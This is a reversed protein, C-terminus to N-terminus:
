DHNITQRLIEMWRRQSKENPMDIRWEPHDIDRVQVFLGSAKRNEREVRANHGMAQSGAHLGYGLVQGGTSLNTRWERIESFPYEKTAWGGDKLRVIKRTTDVAIATGGGAYAYQAGKAFTKAATSIESGDDGEKMTLLLMPLLFFWGIFPIVGFIAGLIGFGIASRRRSKAVLASLLGGGIVFLLLVFPFAEDRM